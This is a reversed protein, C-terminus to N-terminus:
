IIPFLQQPQTSAYQVAALLLGDESLLLAACTTDSLSYTYEIGTEGAFASFPLQQATQLAVYTQYITSDDQTPIQVPCTRVAATEIPTCQHETLFQRRASEDPLKYFAFLPESATQKQFAGHLRLFVGGGLLVAACLPLLIRKRHM